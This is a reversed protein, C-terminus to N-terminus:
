GSHRFGAERMTLPMSGAVEGFMVAEVIRGVVMVSDGADTISEVVCSVFGLAAAPVLIGERTSVTEFGVADYKDGIRARPKGLSGALERSGTALPAIAFRHSSEILSLTSSQREISVMVLAPDFSIQSLWNATFIGRDGGHKAAVAYLGYTFQRLVAKKDAPDFTDCNGTMSSEGGFDVDRHGESARAAHRELEDIRCGFRVWDDPV